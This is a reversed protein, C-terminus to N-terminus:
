RVVSRSSSESMSATSGLSLQEYLVHFWPRPQAMCSGIVKRFSSMASVTVTARHGAAFEANGYKSIPQRPLPQM